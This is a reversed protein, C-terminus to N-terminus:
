AKYLYEYHTNGSSDPHAAITIEYGIAEDDKYTVEAVDTVQGKPIVFRHLTGDIHVTEVAWEQEPLPDGNVKITLGTGLAGTVNSSGFVTKLVDTNTCDILTVKFTDSHGTPANLVTDGGWAKIEATERTNANTMGDESCYGLSKFAVDLATSADTPLTSGAPAVNVAGGVKPKSNSVAM